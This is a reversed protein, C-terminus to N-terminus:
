GRGSQLRASLAGAGVLVLGGGIALALDLRTFPLGGPEAGSGAAVAARAGSETAEPDDAAFTFSSLSLSVFVAAFAAAV